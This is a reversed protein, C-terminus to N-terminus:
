RTTVDSWSLHKIYNPASNLYHTSTTRELSVM